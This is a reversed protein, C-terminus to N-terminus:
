ACKRTTSINTTICNCKEVVAREGEELIDGLIKNVALYYLIKPLNGWYLRDRHSVGFSSSDIRQPDIGLKRFVILHIIM